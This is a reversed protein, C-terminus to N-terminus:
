RKRCVVLARTRGDDLRYHEVHFMEFDAPPEVDEEARMLAVKGGSVLLRRADEFVGEPGKYARSVVGQFAGDPLDESRQHLVEANPLKRAVQRLFVTRRERSEVLQVRVTPHLAALAVGPFGAGSGLDAWLEGDQTPLAQMARRADQFHPELPGPGVLDMAKRWKRLLELHHTEGPTM